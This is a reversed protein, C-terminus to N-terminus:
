AADPPPPSRNTPLSSSRPLLPANSLVARCPPSSERGTDTWSTRGVSRSPCSTGTSVISSQFACSFLRSRANRRSRRRERFSASVETSRRLRRHLPLFLRAGGRGSPSLSTLYGDGLLQVPAGAQLSQERGTSRRTCSLMSAIKLGMFAAARVTGYDSGGVSHRVGSDLGWLEVQQPLPEFGLVTAPRCLLALLSGRRGLMSAMQDMIGCPAGAVQLRLLLGDAPGRTVPRGAVPVGPPRVMNEARQVLAAAREPPLQLDLAAALAAMVAVGVAASSAVGKGMPVSSEVLVSVDAGRLAGPGVLGEQLLM